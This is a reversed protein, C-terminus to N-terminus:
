IFIVLWNRLEIAEEGMAETVFSIKSTVWTVDDESFDLLDTESVWEYEENSACTPDDVPTLCM